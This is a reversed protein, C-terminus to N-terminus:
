PFPHRGDALHWGILEGVSGLVAVVDGPSLSALAHQVAGSRTSFYKFPQQNQTLRCWRNNRLGAYHITLNGALQVKSANDPTVVNDALRTMGASFVVDFAFCLPVALGLIEILDSYEIPHGGHAAANRKLSCTLFRGQIPLGVNGIRDLVSQMQGWPDAIHLSGLATTIDTVSVNSGSRLLSYEHISFQQQNDTSAVAGAVTRIIQMQNPKDYGAERIGNKIADVVSAKQIGPPLQGFNLTSIQALNQFHERVREKLYDEIGNFAVVYLGRRLLAATLNDSQNVPGPALRRLADSEAARRM